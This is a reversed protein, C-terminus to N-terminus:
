LYILWALCFYSVWLETLYKKGGGENHDGWAYINFHFYWAVSLLIVQLIMLISVILIYKNFIYKVM